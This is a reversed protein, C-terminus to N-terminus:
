LVGRWVYIDCVIDYLKLYTIAINTVGSKLLVPVIM